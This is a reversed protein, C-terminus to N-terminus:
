AKALHEHLRSEILVKGKLLCAAGLEHPHEALSSYVNLHIRWDAYRGELLSLLAYVLAASVIQSDLELSRSKNPYWDWNTHVLNEPDQPGCANEAVQQIQVALHADMQEYAQEAESTPFEVEAAPLKLLEIELHTASPVVIFPLAGEHNM